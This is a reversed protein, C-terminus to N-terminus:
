LYFVAIGGWNEDAKPQPLEDLQDSIYQLVDDGYKNMTNQAVHYTVAPM